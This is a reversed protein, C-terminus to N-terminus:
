RERWPLGVSVFRLATCGRIVAEHMTGFRGVHVDGLTEGPATILESLWPAEPREPDPRRRVRVITDAM